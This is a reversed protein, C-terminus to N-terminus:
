IMTRNGTHTNYICLQVDALKSLESLTLSEKIYDNVSGFAPRHKFSVAHNIIRNGNKTRSEIDLHTPSNNNPDVKVRVEGVENKVALNKAVKNLEVLFVEKERLAFSSLPKDDARYEAINKMKINLLVILSGIRELIGSADVTTEEGTCVLNNFKTILEKYKEMEVLVNAISSKSDCKKDIYNCKIVDLKTTIIEMLNLFNRSLDKNYSCPTDIFNKVDGKSPSSLNLTNITEMLSYVVVSSITSLEAIKGKEADTKEVTSLSECITEMEEFIDKSDIAMNPIPSELTVRTIIDMPIRCDSDVKSYMLNEMSIDQLKSFLSIPKRAFEKGLVIDLYSELSPKEEDEDAIAEQLETELEENETYEEKESKIVEIVKDKILNGIYKTDISGADKIFKDYNEKSFSAKDVIEALNKDTDPNHKELVGKTMNIASENCVEYIKSLLMVKNIDTESVLRSELLGFGGISELTKYSYLSLERREDTSLSEHGFALSRIFSENVITHFTLNRFKTMLSDELIRKNIKM